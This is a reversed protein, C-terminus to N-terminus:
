EVLDWSSRFVPAGYINGTCMETWSVYGGRNISTEGDPSALAGQTDTMFYPQARLTSSPCGKQTIGMYSNSRNGPGQYFKVSSIGGPGVINLNETYQLCIDSVSTNANYCTYGVAWRDRGKAKHILIVTGVEFAEETVRTPPSWLGGSIDSSLRYYLYIHNPDNRDRDTYFFYYIKNAMTVSGILGQTNDAAAPYNGMIANGNSDTLMLPRRQWDPVSTTFPYWTRTGNSDNSLIEYTYFDLTRGVHVGHLYNASHPDLVFGNTVSLFFTYHYNDGAWSRGGITMPNAGGSVQAALPGYYLSSLTDDNTGWIVYRHDTPLTWSFPGPAGAAQLSDGARQFGGEYSARSESHFITRYNQEGLKYIQVGYALHLYSPQYYLGEDGPNHCVYIPAAGGTKYCNPNDTCSGQTASGSLKGSTCTRIEGSCGGMRTGLKEHFLIISGGNPVTTGNILCSAPADVNCNAFNGAGSLSGNVCTRTNPQCAQGAPVSSVPYATVSNGSAITQGNFLCSAAGGVNCTAYAGSGSLAGNQCVRVTPSCTQGFPVQSAAYATTAQGHPITQGNFLCSAYSSPSGCTAFPYSGSLVGNTCNRTETKCTGSTSDLYATVSTGSPITKGNFLCAPAGGVNCSAYAYSGSLGGELCTRKESKCSQGATVASTLYGTVSEGSAVIEGNFKCTPSVSSFCAADKSNNRCFEAGFGKFSAATFSSCNQFALGVTLFQLSLVMWSFILKYRIM